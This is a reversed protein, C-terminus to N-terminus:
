EDDVGLKRGRKRSGQAGGAVIRYMDDIQPQEGRRITLNPM